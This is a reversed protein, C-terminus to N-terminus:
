RVASARPLRMPSRGLGFELDDALLPFLRILASRNHESGAFNRPRESSVVPIHLHRGPLPLFLANRWHFFCLLKLTGPSYFASFPPPAFFQSNPISFFPFNSKFVYVVGPLSFLPPSPLSLSPAAPFFFFKGVTVEFITKRRYFFGPPPVTCGIAM